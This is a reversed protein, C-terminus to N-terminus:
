SSAKGSRGFRHLLFLLPAGIGSLWHLYELGDSWEPPAHYIYYGTGALWITFVFLATGTWRKQQKRWAPVVHLAWLAGFMWVGILAFLVHLRMLWQRQTYDMDTAFQLLLWATGTLWIALAVGYLAWRWRNRLKPAARIGRVDSPAPAGNSPGTM